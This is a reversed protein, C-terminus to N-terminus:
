FRSPKRDIMTSEDLKEVTFTGRYNEKIWSNIEYIEGAQQIRTVSQMFQKGCTGCLMDFIIEKRLHKGMFALQEPKNLMKVLGSVADEVKKDFDEMTEADLESNMIRGALNGDIDLIVSIVDDLTFEISLALFDKEEGCTLLQGSVPQRNSICFGARTLIIVLAIQRLDASINLISEDILNLAYPSLRIGAIIM